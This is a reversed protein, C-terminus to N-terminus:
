FPMDPDLPETAVPETAVPEDDEFGVPLTEEISIRALDFILSDDTM